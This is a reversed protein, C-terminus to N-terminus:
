GLVISPTFTCSLENWPQRFNNRTAAEDLGATLRFQAFARLGKSKSQAACVGSATWPQNGTLKCPALGNTFVRYINRYGAYKNGIYSDYFYCISLNCFLFAHWHLYAKEKSDHIQQGTKVIFTPSSAVRWELSSHTRCMSLNKVSAPSM